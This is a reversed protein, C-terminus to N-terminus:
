EIVLAIHHKEMMWCAKISFQKLRDENGIEVSEFLSFLISDSFVFRGNLVDVQM